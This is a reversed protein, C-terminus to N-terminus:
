DLYGYDTLRSRATRLEGETFLDAYKSELVHAEVTLDLRRSEWLATFGDSVGSTHLLQRATELGGHESVIQIFRTAVYGAESKAREYISIMAKHFDRELEERTTPETTATESNSVPEHTDRPLEYPFESDSREVSGSSTSGWHHELYDVTERVTLQRTSNGTRVFFLDSGKSTSAYVPKASRRVDVRCVPEDDVEVFSVAVNALEAKGITNELLGMLWNEYGDLDSRNLTSLDRALGLVSGTDDVGIILTGGHRNMFGAVTRVISDEIVKDKDGRGYSWRASSKFEVRESERLDILERVSWHEPAHQFAPAVDPAKGPQMEALLLLTEWGARIVRAILNRRKDLFLRYDMEHWREPLAHWFAMKDLQEGPTAAVYSPYYMVPPKAGISINDSWEVLAYNAIQNIEGIKDVGISELYARPFLHHRELASKHGQVAPDILETVKMESFLVPADLVCLAAYYAFLSPSRGGSRDLDNPLRIEWFDTTLEQQCIRDIEAVFEDATNLSRLRALDSEM